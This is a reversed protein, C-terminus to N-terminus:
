TWAADRQKSRVRVLGTRFLWRPALRDDSRKAWSDVGSAFSSQVPADDPCGDILDCLSKMEM